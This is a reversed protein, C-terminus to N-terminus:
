HPQVGVGSGQGRSSEIQKRREDIKPQANLLVDVYNPIEIQLKDVFAGRRRGLMELCKAAVGENQVKYGVIVDEQDVSRGRLVIPIEMRCASYLSVLEEDLKELTFESKQILEGEKAELLERIYPKSLNESGMQRASKKSYGAKEAAETANQTEQYYQVFLKQKSTLKREAM